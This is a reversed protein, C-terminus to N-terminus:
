RKNTISTSIMSESEIDLGFEALFKKTNERGIISILEDIDLVAPSIVIKVGLNELITLAEEPGYKAVLEGFKRSDHAVQKKKKDLLYEQYETVTNNRKPRPM